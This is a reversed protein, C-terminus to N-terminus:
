EGGRRQDIARPSAATRARSLSRRVAGALTREGVVRPVPSSRLCRGASRRAARGHPGQHLQRHRRRRGDLGSRRTHRPRRRHGARRGRAHVPRHRPRGRRPAPERRRTSRRGVHSQPSRRSRSSGCAAGGARRAGDRGAGRDHRRGLLRDHRGDARLHLEVLIVEALGPTREIFMAQRQGNAGVVQTHFTM